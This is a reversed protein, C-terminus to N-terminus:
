EDSYTDANHFEIRHHAHERTPLRFLFFFSPRLSSSSFILRSFIVVPPTFIMPTDAYCRSTFLPQLLPLIFFSSSCPPALLAHCPTARRRRLAPPAHGHHRILLPMMMAHAANIAGEPAHLPRAIQRKDAAHFSLLHHAPMDYRPLMSYRRRRRRQRVAAPTHLTIRRRSGDRLADRVQQRLILTAHSAVSFAVAIADAAAHHCIAIRHPPVPMPAM